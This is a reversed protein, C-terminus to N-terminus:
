VVDAFNRETSRFYITGIGLAIAAILGSMLLSMGDFPRGLLASRFGQILGTMPNLQLLWQWRAPVISVPYIVPTLFLWLQLMFPVVYRFDRYAVNLASLLLGVGLAAVMMGLILFPLAVLAVGPYIGYYFMLVLLVLGAVAFDVLASGVSAMPIILRPFYVKTILSASGVVSGASQGVSSAFLTWPLLGAYLFIPYPLGDSPMGALRGFFISFVVMYMVPQIIAWLAGLVTQKYRVKIDRWVLFYFLDRYHVLERWDIAVWGRRPEIITLPKADNSSPRPSSPRLSSSM